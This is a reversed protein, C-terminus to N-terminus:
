DNQVDCCSLFHQSAWGDEKDKQDLFQYVDSATAPGQLKQGALMMKELEDFTQFVCRMCHVVLIVAQCKLVSTTVTQLQLSEILLGCISM